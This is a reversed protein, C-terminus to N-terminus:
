KKYSVRFIRNNGDESLLLSGDNMQLIGVPRGWVDRSKEGLMFGSLFEIPDGVPKGGKFPLFNISYGLRDARNSSGRYVLFAGNRYKAPFMKGTYFIFDMVAAHAPLVVDPEVSQAVMEPKVGKHRPEENAGIYAYPWGYFKGQGISTFFDPVLGDGLGDREQVTAWLVQNVPNVRITVPNRLGTAMIKHNSGDPSYTNIANRDEPDGLDVNSGSGVGVYLLDGAKNFALSRTWHGKGYDKLPVIMEAPGVSLAAADLKYRKIAEAEAVYLYDKWLALSSPRDLNTILDKKVGNTVAVVSGKPISDSVLVTGTSLQVMFRPKKFGSGWEEAVFGPPVVLKAGAPREITKAGNSSSPTAYPAPLKVKAREAGAVLFPLSLLTLTKLM